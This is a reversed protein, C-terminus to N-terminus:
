KRLIRERLKQIAKLALLSKQLSDGQLAVELADRGLRALADVRKDHEQVTRYTLNYCTRCGWYITGPPLYLKSVRNECAIGNLILPCKFFRRNGGFRCPEPVIEIEYQVVSEGTFHSSPAPFRFFLCENGRATMQLVFPMSRLTGPCFEALVLEHWSTFGLDFIRNRMLERIHLAACEEVALKRGRNSPM